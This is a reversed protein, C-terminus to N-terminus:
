QKKRSERARRSRVYGRMPCGCKGIQIGPSTPSTVWVIIQGCDPCREKERQASPM